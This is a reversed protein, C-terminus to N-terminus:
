SFSHRRRYECRYNGLPLFYFFFGCQLSSAKTWSSFRKFNTRSIQGHDKDKYRPSYEILQSLTLFFLLLFVCSNRNRKRFFICPSTANSKVMMTMSFFSFPFIRGSVISCAIPIKKNSKSWRRETLSLVAISNWRSTATLCCKGIPRKENKM